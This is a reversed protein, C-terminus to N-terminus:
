RCIGDYSCSEDAFVFSQIQEGKASSNMVYLYKQNDLTRYTSYIDTDDYKVRYVQANIIDNLTVNSELYEYVYENVCM